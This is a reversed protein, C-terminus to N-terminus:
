ESDSFAIKAEGLLMEYAAFSLLEITDAVRYCLIKTPIDNIVQLHLLIEDPLRVRHDKSVVLRKFRSELLRLDRESETGGAGILESRRALLKPGEPDWPLIRAVGPELIALAQLGETLKGLWPVQSQIFTPLM